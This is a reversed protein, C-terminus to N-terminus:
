HGGQDELVRAETPDCCDYVVQCGLEFDALHGVDVSSDAHPTVLIANCGMCLADKRVRVYVDGDWGFPAGEPVYRFLVKTPDELEVRDARTTPTHRILVGPATHPRVQDRIWAQFRHHNWLLGDVAVVVAAFARTQEHDGALDQYPPVLVVGGEAETFTQVRDTVVAIM